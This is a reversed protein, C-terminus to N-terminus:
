SVSKPKKLEERPRLLPAGLPRLPRTPRTPGKIRRSITDLLELMSDNKESIAKNTKVMEDFKEVLPKFAEQTVGAVEEEGSSRIFSILEKLETILEDLKSPLKSIEIRMADNAKALEDILEQNMRVISVVEKIFERSDGGASPGTELKEIRKELRRLPSMPILEYEDEVDRVM